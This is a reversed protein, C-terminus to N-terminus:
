SNLLAKSWCCYVLFYSTRSKVKEATLLHTSLCQNQQAMFWIQWSQLKVRKFIDSSLSSTGYVRVHKKIRLIRRYCKSLSIHAWTPTELFSFLTWGDATRHSRCKIKHAFVTCCSGKLRSRGTGQKTDPTLINYYFVNTCVMSKNHRQLKRLKETM